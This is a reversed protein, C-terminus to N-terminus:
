SKNPNRFLKKQKELAETVNNCGMKDLVKKLGGEPKPRTSQQKIDQIPGRYIDPMFDKSGFEYDCEFTLMNKVKETLESNTLKTSFMRWIMNCFEPSIKDRGFHDMLKTMELRFVNITM